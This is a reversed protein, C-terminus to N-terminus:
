VNMGIPYGSLFLYVNYTLVLVVEMKIFCMGYANLICLIKYGNKGDVFILHVLVCYKLFFSKTLILVSISDDSHM